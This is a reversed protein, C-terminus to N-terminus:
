SLARGMRWGIVAALSAIDNASQHRSFGDVLGQAGDIERYTQLGLDDHSQNNSRLTILVPWNLRNGVGASGVL